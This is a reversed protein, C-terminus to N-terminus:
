DGVSMEIAEMITTGLWLRKFTGQHSSLPTGSLSSSLFCSILNGPNTDMDGLLAPHSLQRDEGSGPGVLKEQASPKELSNQWM